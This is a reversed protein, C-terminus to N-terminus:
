LTTMLLKMIIRKLTITYDELASINCHEKSQLRSLKIYIALEAKKQNNSEYAHHVMKRHYDTKSNIHKFM